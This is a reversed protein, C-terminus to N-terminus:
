LARVPLIDVNGKIKIFCGSSSQISVSQPVGGYYAMFDPYPCNADQYLSESSFSNMGGCKFPNQNPETNSCSTTYLFCFDDATAMSPIGVVVTITSYGKCNNDESCLTKCSSKQFNPDIFTTYVCCEHFVMDSVCCAGM